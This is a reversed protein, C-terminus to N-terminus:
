YKKAEFKKFFYLFKGNNGVRCKNKEYKRGKAMGFFPDCTTFQLSKLISLTVFRIYLKLM